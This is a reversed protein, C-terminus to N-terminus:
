KRLVRSKVFPALPGPNHLIEQELDRLERGVLLREINSGLHPDHTTARRYDLTQLIAAANKLRRVISPKVGHPM